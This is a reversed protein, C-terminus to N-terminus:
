LMIAIAAFGVLSVLAMGPIAFRLWRDFPVHAALLMALFPGTTPSLVDTLVAGTQFAMVAADRSMGILDAVPAFVPITLVAQGSTSPLLVHLLAQIPVMLAGAAYTPLDDLPAALAYVVTDLVQADILVISIARSIGILLAAGLMTEMGRIFKVTTEGLSMGSVVGVVYGVVLFIASLEDFGWDLWLVGCVYPVFPVLVLALLMVDRMSAQQTVLNPIDPKVDDRAAQRVTWWIWVATAIVLTALRLWASSLAPLEAYELALATSFPNTPGFAAGVVAAGISMSLATISGFGLRRSLMVMVPVLAVIEEHMYEIAGLASFVSSVGAIVATPHYARYILAGVLRSLTGTQELLAFAGGVFLIVAIVDAGEMIGRPVAVLAAMLGVPTGAVAHYSGAVVLAAGTAPDVARDFAGPPIIWTLLTAVALGGLLMLFPHPVHFRIPASMACHDPYHWRKAVAAPVGVPVADSTM